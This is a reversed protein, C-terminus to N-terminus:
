AGGLCVYECEGGCGGAWMMTVAPEPLVAEGKAVLDSGSLTFLLLRRRVAVALTSSGEHWAFCSAGRTGMAQITHPPSLLILTPNFSSDRRFHLTGRM